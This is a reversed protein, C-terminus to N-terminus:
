PESRTAGPITLGMLKIMNAAGQVHRSAWERDGPALATFGSAVLDDVNDKPMVFMIERGAGDERKVVRTKEQLGGVRRVRGRLDLHGTVPVLPKCLEPCRALWCQLSPSHLGRGVPRVQTCRDGIVMLLANQHADFLPARSGGGEQGLWARVRAVHLAAWTV